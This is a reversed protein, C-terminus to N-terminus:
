EKYDNTFEHLADIISQIAEETLGPYVGVWFTNHMVSDTNTLDGSVRYARDNGKIATFCPHRLLNGAFLM